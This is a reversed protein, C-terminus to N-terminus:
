AEPGAPTHAKLWQTVMNLVDAKQPENHTEHYLGDWIKLTCDGKVKAAFERCAEASVLHDESGCYILLPLSLESAHDLLWLGVDILGIGLRPTLKDHVLPDQAYAQVVAPDHSLAAQDLGSTMTFSPWLNFLLRGLVTKSAPPQFALRLQPSSAVVGALAPQRRIAYYLVLNGGLSHGFLFVPTSPFRARVERLAVDIDELFVDYGPTYGRPGESLGHGRLDFGLMAYGERDFAAAVHPYRGTHEGIGHVLCVAGRPKGDPKWERGVLKLGDQSTTEIRIEPM